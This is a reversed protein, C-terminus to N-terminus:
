FYLDFFFYSAWNAGIGKAELVLVRAHQNRQKIRYAATMGSIGAGIVIVDWPHDEQSTAMTFDPFSSFYM